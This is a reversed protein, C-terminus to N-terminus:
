LQELQADLQDHQYCARDVLTGVTTTAIREQCSVPPGARGVLLEVCLLFTRATWLSFMGPAGPEQSRPPIASRSRM